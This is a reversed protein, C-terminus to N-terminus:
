ASSRSRRGDPRRGRRRGHLLDRDRHDGRHRRRDRAHAPPAEAEAVRAVRRAGAGGPRVRHRHGDPHGVRARGRRRGRDGPLDPGAGGHRRDRGHDAPHGGALQQLEGSVVERKIELGVVLFFLAMLGDNVWFHLDKELHRGALRAARLVRDRLAVRVRGELPLQGLRTGAVVAVFLLSASATATQLFEQLPQVVRRPVLRESRSWPPRVEDFADTPLARRRPDPTVPESM